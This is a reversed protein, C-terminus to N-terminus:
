QKQWSVGGDITTWVQRDITTLRGHDADKFELTTIDAGLPVGDKSLKVQVWSQGDDGSHYLAGGAGGVWVESRSISIARFVVHGAVPIVQWTKGGDISREVTGSDSLRWLGAPALGALQTFNRGQFPLEEKKNDLDINSDKAKGRAMQASEAQIVPTEATVEVTENTAPPTEMRSQVGGTVIGAGAAANAGPAAPAPAEAVEVAESSAPLKADHSPLATTPANENKYSNMAALMGGATGSNVRPAKSLAPGNAELNGQSTPSPQAEIKDLTAANPGAHITKSALQGDPEQPAATFTAVELKEHRAHRGVIAGGVLLLCAAAAAWRLTPWSLWRKSFGPRVETELAAEPLALLVIERCDACHALHELVQSREGEGLSRELFETLAGADPHVAEKTAARLRREVITPIKAM